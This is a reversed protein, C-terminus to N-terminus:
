KNGTGPLPAKTEKAEREKEDLNRFIRGKLEAYMENTVLGLQQRAEDFRGANMKFRALHIYVGEREIDDRALNLANTWAKLADETRVPKVAYYCQALDTALPFNGPDLKMAQNYLGFAKDFVQQETLGYYEMADKRFLYVVMGLNHYYLPVLPNLEIAKAYYEFAKKIPGRHVYQDALNNWAAPNKPDLARAREWQAEAEAEDHIDMLFSGYALRARVHDPHRRLFDEYSHRIPTFRIRIREQMVTSPLGGGKEAFAQNERIWHDVEEQSADDAALLKQYEREVPDNPDPVTIAIGTNAVILNSVAQPQNTAVLAGLLGLLLNSM